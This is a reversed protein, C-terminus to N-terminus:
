RDQLAGLKGEARLLVCVQRMRQQDAGIVAIGHRKGHALDIGIITVDRRQYGGITTALRKVGRTKDNRAINM